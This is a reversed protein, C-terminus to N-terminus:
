GEDPQQRAGYPAARNGSQRGRADGAHRRQQAAHRGGGLTARIGLLIRGVNFYNAGHRQWNADRPEKAVLAERIRLADRFANLVEAADCEVRAGIRDYAIALDGQRENHLPEVRALKERLDFNAQYMARAEDRRNLTFLADGTREYSM